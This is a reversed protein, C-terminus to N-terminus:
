EARRPPQAQDREIAAPAQDREIAAPAQDREIAAPAQDREIAAPAKLIPQYEITIEMLLKCKSFLREGITPRVQANKGFFPLKELAFLL